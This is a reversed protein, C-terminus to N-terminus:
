TTNPQIARLRELLVVPDVPKVIHANFGAEETRRRDEDQGWGTLAVISIRGGWPQQRIRRCVEYGDPSPMGLDLLVVRPDFEEAARCASEGDHATRVDAGLQKFLYGLMEASDSNDDVVLVRQDRWSEGLVIPTEAALAQEIVLRGPLRLVFESGRGPGGSTAQLTGGHMEILRRALALGIGLGGAGHPPAHDGRAFLDFIAELKDGDIGIGNDRVRIVLDGDAREVTLDITGGSPTYKAANLLLNGIVQTLRASDADIVIPGDSYHLNLTQRQQEVVPRSLDMAAAIADRLMMPTRQLALTGRSLRSVDLLDDLLRSMHAAQRDIVDRCRVLLPESPGKARLLAVSTRIPALPNRLEHALIAIFQDKQRASEQELGGLQKADTIDYSCGVHGIFTRDASFRPSAQSAIWRWQGDARRVRAEAHFAGQTRVAEVYAQIYAHDDIHVLPQWGGPALAQELTAGFYERYERNVFEIHGSADTVWIIVPAGDAM